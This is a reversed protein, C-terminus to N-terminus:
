QRWALLKLAKDTNDILDELISYTDAEMEATNNNCYQNYLKVLRTDKFKFHKVFNDKEITHLELFLLENLMIKKKHKQKVKDWVDVSMKLLEKYLEKNQQYFKREGAQLKDQIYLLNKKSEKHIDPTCLTRMFISYM